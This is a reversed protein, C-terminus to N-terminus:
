RKSEEAKKVADNFVSLPVINYDGVQLLQRHATIWDITEKKSKFIIPEAKHHSNEDELVACIPKMHNDLAVFM